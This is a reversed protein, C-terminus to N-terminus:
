ENDDDVNEDEDNNDDNNDGNYEEYGYGEETENEESEGSNSFLKYLSCVISIVLAAGIAATIRPNKKALDVGKELYGGLTPSKASINKVISDIKTGVSQGWSSVQNAASDYANSVFNSVIDKLESFKGVLSSLLSNTNALNKGALKVADRAVGAGKDAVNRALDGITSSIGETVNLASKTIGKAANALDGAVSLSNNSVQALKGATSTLDKAVSLSNNSVQAIEGVTEVVGKTVEATAKVLDASNAMTLGSGAIGAIASGLLFSGGVKRLNFKSSM